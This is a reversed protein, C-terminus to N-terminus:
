KLCSGKMAAQPGVRCNLPGDQSQEETLRCEMVSSAEDIFDFESSSSKFGEKSVEYTYRGIYLGNILGNTSGSKRNKSDRKPYLVFNAKDPLSIICATIALKRSANALLSLLTEGRDLWLNARKESVLKSSPKPTPQALTAFVINCCQNAAADPSHSKSTPNLEVGLDAFKDEVYSRFADLEAYNQIGGRVKKEARGLIRELDKVSYYLGGGVRHTRLAVRESNFASHAEAIRLSVVQEIEKIRSVAPRAISGAVPAPGKASLLDDEMSDSPCPFVVVHVSANLTQISNRFEQPEILLFAADSLTLPAMAEKGIWAGRLESRGVRLNYQMWQILSSLRAKAQAAATDSDETAAAIAFIYVISNKPRQRLTLLQSERLTKWDFTRQLETSSEPFFLHISSLGHHGLARLIPSKQVSRDIERMGVVDFLDGSGYEIIRFAKMLEVDSCAPVQASVSAHVALFALGLAFCRQLGSCSRRDTKHFATRRRRYIPM